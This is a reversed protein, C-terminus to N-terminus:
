EKNLMERIDEISLATDKLDLKDFQQRQLENLRGKIIDAERGSYRKQAMGTPEMKSDLIKKSQFLGTKSSEFRKQASLLASGKETGIFNGTQFEKDFSARKLPVDKSFGSAESREFLSSKKGEFLKRGLDSEKTIFGGGMRDMQFEKSGIDNLQDRDILDKEEAYGSFVVMCFILIHLAKMVRLHYM